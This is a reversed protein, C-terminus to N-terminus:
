KNYPNDRIKYQMSDIFYPKVLNKFIEVQDKKGIRIRFSNNKKYLSSELNFKNKLINILRIVNETSFSDTCFVIDTGYRKHHIYGDDMYWYALTEPTFYQELDIPLIKKDKYWSHYLETFTDLKRSQLLSTHYVKIEGKYILKRTRDFPKSCFNHLREYCHLLYEKQKISHELKLRSKHRENAPKELNANGLLKGYLFPKLKELTDKNM